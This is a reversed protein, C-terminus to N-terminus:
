VQMLRFLLIVSLEALPNLRADHVESLEVRVDHDVVEVAVPLLEFLLLRIDVMLNVVSRISLVGVKFVGFVHRPHFPMHESLDHLSDVDGVVGALLLHLDCTVKLAEDVDEIRVWEVM